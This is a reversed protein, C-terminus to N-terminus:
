RGQHVLTRALDQADPNGRRHAVDIRAGPVRAGIRRALRVVREDRVGKELRELARARHARAGAPQGLVQQELIAGAAQQRGRRAIQLGVAAALEHEVPAPGIGILAGAPPIVRLQLDGHREGRGGARAQEARRARRAAGAAALEGCAGGFQAALEGGRRDVDREEGLGLRRDRRPRSAADCRCGTGSACGPSHSSRRSGRRGTTACACSCGCPARRTAPRRRMSNLHSVPDSM